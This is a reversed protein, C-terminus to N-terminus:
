SGGGGAVGGRPALLQDPILDQLGRLDPKALVLTLVIAVLPLVLALGLVPAAPWHSRREEGSRQIMHGFWAHVLVLGAVFALKALLWPEYVQAVFILATGAIIATLAAPTAVAIYGIHTVLRYEAFQRQRRAGGHGHMLLPLAILAGCWCVLGAIHIFKLAAIM